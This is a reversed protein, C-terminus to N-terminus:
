SVLMETQEREAALHVCVYATAFSVRDGRDVVYVFPLLAEGKPFGSLALLPPGDNVSFSLTGADRRWSACM